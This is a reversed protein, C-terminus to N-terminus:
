HLCKMAKRCRLRQTQKAPNSYKPPRLQVVFLSSINLSMEWCRNWPRASRMCHVLRLDAIQESLTLPTEPEATEGFHKELVAAPLTSITDWLSDIDLVSIEVSPHEQKLDVLATATLKGIKAEPHNHVFTWKKVQGKLTSFATSFDDKIKAATESDRLENLRAPAFVQYVAQSSVVM